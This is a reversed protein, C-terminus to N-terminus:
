AAAADERASHGACAGGLACVCPAPVCKGGSAGGEEQRPKAGGKGM